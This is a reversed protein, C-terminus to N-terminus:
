LLPGKANLEPALWEKPDTITQVTEIDLSSPNTITTTNNRANTSMDINTNNPNVLSPYVWIVLESRNERFDKSSFLSGLIPLNLLWALGERSQSEESKILGSLAIAQPKLLDFHTSVKNTLLGPIGEITKSADINSIETNVSISMRGSPDALPKIKLLIGYQKWIVTSMKFNSVKIPFEGGAMFEAEKGSKCILNPHALIRGQGSSELAKLNFKLEEESWTNKILQASYSTPPQLGYQRAFEKKVETIFIQVKITPTTEISLPDQIVKIGYSKLPNEYSLLNESNAIHIELQDNFLLIQEKLGAKKLVENVHNQAETHFLKSFEAAMIYKIHLLQAMNKIKLWDQISSIQGLIQLIGNQYKMSLEPYEKIHEKIKKDNILTKPDIVQILIPDADLSGLSILSEGEAVGQVLVQAGQSEPTGTSRQTEQSGQTKVKLISSKEVWIQTGKIPFSRSEGTRLYIEESLVFPSFLFIVFILFM